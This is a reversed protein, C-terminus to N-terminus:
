RDQPTRARALAYALVSAAGSEKLTLCASELTSGTTCVDDILLIDAERLRDDRCRFADSVNARRETIGLGVQPATARVRVLADEVVPCGLHVSLARALLAAQNYGRQRQRSPHLPIAVIAQPQWGPPALNHWGEAMLGALLPALCRLGTYKFEHIAKRLTGDHFGYALLGEWEQSLQQCRGCRQALTGGPGSAQLPLGCRRCLPPALVDINSICTTCLWPGLRSCAVCRPPFLLDVGADILRKLWILGPPSIATLRKATTVIGKSQSHCYLIFRWNRCRPLGTM